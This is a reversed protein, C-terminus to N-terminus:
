SPVSVGITSRGSSANSGASVRASISRSAASAGTAITLPRSRASTRRKIPISPIVYASAVPEVDDQGVPGGVLPAGLEEGRELRGFAVESGPQGRDRSRLDLRLRERDGHM